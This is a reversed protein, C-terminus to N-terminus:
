KKGNRYAIIQKRTRKAKQEKGKEERSDGKGGKLDIGARKIERGVEAKILESRGERGAKENRLSELSKAEEEEWVGM